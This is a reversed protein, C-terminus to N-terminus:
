VSQDADAVRLQGSIFEIIYSAEHLRDIRSYHRESYSMLAALVEEFKRIKKLREVKFVRFCSGIVCQSVFSYKANTNWDVVLTLIKEIYEDELEAIFSDLRAVRFEFSSCDNQVENDHLPADLISM